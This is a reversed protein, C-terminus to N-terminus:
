LSQIDYISLDTDEYYLAVPVGARRADAAVVLVSPGAPTKCSYWVNAVRIWAGYNSAFLNTVPGVVAKWAM